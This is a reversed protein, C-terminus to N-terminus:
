IHILSLMEVLGTPQQIPLVVLLSLVLSQHVLLLLQFELTVVTIFNFLDVRFSHLLLIVQLLRQDSLMQDSEIYSTVYGTRGDYFLTLDDDDGLKISKAKTGDDDGISLGGVTIANTTTAGRGTVTDLTDAESSIGGTVTSWVINGTGDSTM